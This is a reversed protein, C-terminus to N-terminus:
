AHVKEKRLEEVKATLHTIKDNLAEIDAKSPINMRDYVRDIQKEVRKGANKRRKETVEKILKRADKEAIEGRKVLRNVFDELEDQALGVAGVAALMVKRTAELLRNREEEDKAELEELEEIEPHKKPM